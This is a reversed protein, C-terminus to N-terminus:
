NAMRSIRQILNPPLRSLARVTEIRRLIQNREHPVVNTNAYHWTSPIHRHQMFKIQEKRWRKSALIYARHMRTWKELKAKTQVSSSGLIKWRKNMLNRAKKLRVAPTVFERKM